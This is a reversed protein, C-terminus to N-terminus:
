LILVQTKTRMYEKRGGKFTVLSTIDPEFEAINNSITSALNVEESEPKLGIDFLVMIEIATQFM